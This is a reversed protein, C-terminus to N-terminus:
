RRATKRETRAQEAQAALVESDPIYVNGQLGQWFGRGTARTAKVSTHIVLGATNGLREADLPQKAAPQKAVQNLYAM